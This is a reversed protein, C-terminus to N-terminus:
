GGNGGPRAGPEKAAVTTRAAALAGLGDMLLTAVSEEHQRYYVNKHNRRTTVLGVERLRRLHQSVAGQTVPFLRTLDAVCLERGAVALLIAFRIPNGLALFGRSLEDVPANDIAARASRTAGPELPGIANSIM